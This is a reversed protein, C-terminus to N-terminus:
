WAPFTVNQIIFIDDLLTLFTKDCVHNDNQTVNLTRRNIHLMNFDAAILLHPVGTNITQTLLSYSWIMLITMIVKLLAICLQYWIIFRGYKILFEFM